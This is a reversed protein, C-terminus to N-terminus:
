DDREKSKQSNFNITNVQRYSKRIFTAFEKIKELKSSEFTLMLENM